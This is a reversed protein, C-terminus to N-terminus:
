IPEWIYDYLTLLINNDPLVGDNYQVSVFIGM